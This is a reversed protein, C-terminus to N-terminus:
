SLHVHKIVISRTVAEALTYIHLLSTNKVRSVHLKFPSANKTYKLANKIKASLPLTNKLDVSLTSEIPSTNQRTIYFPSANKLEASM